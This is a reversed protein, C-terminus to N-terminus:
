LNGNARTCTFAPLVDLLKSFSILSIINKIDLIYNLLNIFFLISVINIFESFLLVDSGRQSNTSRKSSIFKFLFSFYTAKDFSLM